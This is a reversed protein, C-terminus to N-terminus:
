SRLSWPRRAGRPGAGGFAEAALRAPEQRDSRDAACAAGATERCRAASGRITPSRSRLSTRGSIRRAPLLPVAAPHDFTCTHLWVRGVGPGFATASRARGDPRAGRRHRDSGAVVGFMVIESRAPLQRTSNPLASRRRRGRELALIEHTPDDLDAGRAGRRAHRRALVVALGRRDPPLTARYWAVDPEAVAGYSSTRRAAPSRRRRRTMELFTVVNAIKGPPLDTYGDLSVRSTDTMGTTRATSRDHRSRRRAGAPDRRERCLRSAAARRRALYDLVGALFGPDAAASRLTEAGIGALALFRGLEEPEGALFALAEIALMEAADRGTSARREAIM